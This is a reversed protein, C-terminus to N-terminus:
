ITKFLLILIVNFPRSVENKYCQCRSITERYHQPMSAVNEFLWLLHQYQGNIKRMLNLVRVFDFFYWSYGRPDLLVM